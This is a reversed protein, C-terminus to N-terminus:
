AEEALQIIRLFDAAQLSAGGILGGNIDPQAFLGEANEPNVSGGYLIRTIEGAAGLQQRIGAHVEQAQRPSATVGTGIAWVPEYAIVGACLRDMGVRDAVASIQAAVVKATAGAEREALTEGVCLIPTLGLAEAAAYKEAGRRNDEDFQARRESHGVLVMSCGLDVLMACSLEGTFAGDAHESLNQAGVDIRAQQLRHVVVPLHVAPPFVAVQVKGYDTRQQALREALDAATALSGNMKWNGAVLM